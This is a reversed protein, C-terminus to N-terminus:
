RKRGSQRQQKAQMAELMKKREEAKAMMRAFFGGGSGGGGGGGSGSGGGGGKTPPPMSEAVKRIHRSELIGLVSNTIFYIALGSPANYMFLPFMVVMMIKMMFQTQEQEPTMSGPAAPPTLYKQQIFFVVGLILPLVNLSDIPGLMPLNVLTRGFYIFRDPEALDGLFWGLFKPFGPAISQFVGFFGPAHRLEVAFYLMAYLAIWVPTQLFMPICGLAGAPNVGEERWLKQTEERLKLPDGKFKEQLQRQKPGLAQMSKGWRHMRIQSWRTVPHLITRVVLVLAMIALAWDFVLYDHLFRLLGLLLGTLWPFTCFGCMGGFNYKVLGPTGVEDALPDHRIEARSLPGAYFGLSVDASAGPAVGMAQSTLRLVVAMPNAPDGTPVWFRDISEAAKFVKENPGSGAAILPHVAVGFYRNTLAAWVLRYGRDVSRANPWGAATVMTRGDSGLTTPDVRPSYGDPGAKGLLDHRWWLFDDSLVTPDGGQMQPSLLYGYRIRRKDGGYSHADQPLDVPGFQRWRVTIAKATLNKVEQRLQVEHVGKAITYTRQVKAVEAGSADIITAEFSGPAVQRWVPRREIPVGPTPLQEYGSLSVYQGDIEVGRSAMPTAVEHIDAAVGGGAGGSPKWAHERQLVVNTDRKVTDFHDALTLSEIGAGFKSFRIEFHQGSARDLAGIPDFAQASDVTRAILGTPAAPSTAPTTTPQAAPPTPSPTPTQTASAAAEVPATPTTSSPNASAGAQGAIQNPAPSLPPNSTQGPKPAPSRLMAFALVVGALAIGMPVLVRLLRGSNESPDSM